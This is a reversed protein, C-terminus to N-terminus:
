VAVMAHLGSKPVIGGLECSTTNSIESRFERLAASASPRVEPNTSSMIQFLRIIAQHPTELQWVDAKFPCYPSQQLMEPAPDRGYTERVHEFTADPAYLRQTPLGSVVREAPNTQEPFYVALEFDNYYYFVKFRSQFSTKRPGICNVLINDLSIDLHAILRSHMFSLGELLQDVFDFAEEYTHFWPSDPSEGLTPFVGFTM